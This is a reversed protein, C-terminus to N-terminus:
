VEVVAELSLQGFHETAIASVVPRATSASLMILHDVEVDMGKQGVAGILRLPQRFQGRLDAAGRDGERIM